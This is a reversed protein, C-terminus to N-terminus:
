QGPDLIPTEQHTELGEPQTELHCVFASALHKSEFFRLM